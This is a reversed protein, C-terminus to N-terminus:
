QGLIADVGVAAPGFLPLPIAQGSRYTITLGDPTSVKIQRRIPDVVWFQQAGNELCLVEKDYIESVTNSPSLVEIVLDPAGMFDGEPDAREWRDRAVYAVDAVRFEHEPLPRFSFEMVVMGTEGGAAELLREVRKQIQIHKLRPRSVAVLEGHRLEHYVPGADEPLKQFEAVTM